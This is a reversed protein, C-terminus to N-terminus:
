ICVECEKILKDGDEPSFDAKIEILKNLAVNSKPLVAVFYGDM